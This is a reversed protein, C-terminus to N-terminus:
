ILTTLFRRYKQQLTRYKLFLSLGNKYNYNWLDGFSQELNYDGLDM